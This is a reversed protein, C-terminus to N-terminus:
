LTAVRRCVVLQENVRNCAPERKFLREAHWALHTYILFPFHLLKVWLPLTGDGRKGFARHNGTFHAIGLWLFSLGPWCLLLTWGGQLMGCLILLGGALTIAWQM